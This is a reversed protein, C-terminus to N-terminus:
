LDINNNVTLIKGVPDEDRFYRRSAKESLIISDRGSLATDPNGQLLPFSFMHLFDPDVFGVEEYHSSEEYRALLNNTWFRTSRVIEPFDDKLVDSIAWPSTSTWEGELSSVVRYIRDTNDHFRDYSLEDQIWLFILICCAMGVALGAINIFSYVKYKKINRLATKIYSRLM